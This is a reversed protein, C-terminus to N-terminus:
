SRANAHASSRQTSVSMLPTHPHTHPALSVTPAGNTTYICAALQSGPVCGRRWLSFGARRRSGPIRGPSHKGGRERECVWESACVCVFLCVDACAGLLRGKERKRQQLLGPVPGSHPHACRLGRNEQQRDRHRARKIFIYVANECLLM